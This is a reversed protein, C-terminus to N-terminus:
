NCNHCLVIHILHRILEEFFFVYKMYWINDFWIEMAHFFHCIKLIEYLDLFLYFDIKLEKMANSFSSIWGYEIKEFM